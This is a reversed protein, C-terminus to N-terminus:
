SVLTHTIHNRFSTAKPIRNRVGGDRTIFGAEFPHNRARTPLVAGLTRSVLERRLCGNSLSMLEHIVTTDSGEWRHCGSDARILM